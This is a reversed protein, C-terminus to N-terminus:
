VKRIQPRSHASFAESLKRTDCDRMFYVLNGETTLATDAEKAGTMETLWGIFEEIEAARRKHMFKHQEFDRSERTQNYIVVVTIDNSTIRKDQMRWIYRQMYGNPVRQGALEIEGDFEVQAFAPNAGVYRLFDRQTVEGETMAALYIM